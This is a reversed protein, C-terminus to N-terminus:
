ETESIILLDTKLPKEESFPLFWDRVGEGTRGGESCSIGYGADPRGYTVDPEDLFNHIWKGFICCDNAGGHESQNWEYQQGDKTESYFTYYGKPEFLYTGDFYINDVSYYSNWRNGKWIDMANGPQKIQCLPQIPHLYLTDENEDKKIWMADRSMDFMIVKEIESKQTALRTCSQMKRDISLIGRVTGDVNSSSGEINYKLVIRDRNVNVSIEVYAEKWVTEWENKWENRAEADWSNDQDICHCFEEALSEIQWWIRKEGTQMNYEVLATDQTTYQRGQLIFVSMGEIYSSYVEYRDEVANSQIDHYSIEDRETLAWPIFAFSRIWLLNDALVIGKANLAICSYDHFDKLHITREVRKKRISIVVIQEYKLQYIYEGDTAYRFNFNSSQNGSYKNLSGKGYYDRHFLCYEPIEKEVPVAAPKKETAQDAVNTPASVMGGATNEYHLVYGSLDAKKQLAQFMKAFVQNDSTLNGGVYVCIDGDQDLTFKNNDASYGIRRKVAADIETLGLVAKLKRLGRNNGSKDVDNKDIGYILSGIEVGQNTMFWIMFQYFDRIGLLGNEYVAFQADGKRMALYQEYAPANFRYYSQVRGQGKTTPYQGLNTLETGKVEMLM